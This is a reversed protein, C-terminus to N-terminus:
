AIIIVGGGGSRRAHEPLPHGEATHSWQVVQLSAFSLEETKLAVEEGVGAATSVRHLRGQIRRM